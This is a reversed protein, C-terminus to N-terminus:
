KLTIHKFGFSKFDISDVFFIIIRVFSNADVM